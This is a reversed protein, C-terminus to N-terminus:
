VERKTGFAIIHARGTFNYGAELAKNMTLGYSKLLAPIDDGAPM